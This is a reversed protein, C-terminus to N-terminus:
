VSREIVAALAFSTVFDPWPEQLRGTISVATNYCHKVHFMALCVVSQKVEPVYRQEM